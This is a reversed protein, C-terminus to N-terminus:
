RLTIGSYRCKRWIIRPHMGDPNIGVDLFWFHSCVDDWVILVLNEVAQSLTHSGEFLDTNLPVTSEVEFALIRLRSRSLRTLV